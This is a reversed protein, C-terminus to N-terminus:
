KIKRFQMGQEVYSGLITCILGTPFSMDKCPDENSIIQYMGFSLVIINIITKTAYVVVQKDCEFCCSHWVENQKNKENDTKLSKQEELDDAM